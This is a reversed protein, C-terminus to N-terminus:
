HSYPPLFIRGKRLGFMQGQSLEYALAEELEKNTYVLKSIFAMSSYVTLFLVLLDDEPSVLSFCSNTYEISHM